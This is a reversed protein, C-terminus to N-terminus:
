HSKGKRESRVTLVISLSVEGEEWLASHPSHLMNARSHEISSEACEQCEDQHSEGSAIAELEEEPYVRLGM